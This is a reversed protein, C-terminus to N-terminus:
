LEDRPAEVEEEDDDEDEDDRQQALEPAGGGDLGLAATLKAITQRLARKRM